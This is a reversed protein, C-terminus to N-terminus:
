IFAVIKDAVTYVKDEYQEIKTNTYVLPELIYQNLPEDIAVPLYEEYKHIRININSFVSGRKEQYTAKNRFFLTDIKDYDTTERGDLLSADTIDAPHANSGLYPMYVCKKQLIFEALTQAEECDVLVYIIWGPNELWQEHIILNGGQEFSAYGVSNNFNQMKKEFYGKETLPQIAIKLGSLKEYFEPYCTKDRKQKTYGGYGLIAGFMGLLAVKHILGYTFYGYTNVGPNKFFATKGSLQFQLVKLEGM